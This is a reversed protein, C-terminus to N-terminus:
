FEVIRLFSRSAGLLNNINSTVVVASANDIVLQATVIVTLTGTVNTNYTISGQSVNNAATSPTSVTDAVLNNNVYLRFINHAAAVSSGINVLGTIITNIFTRISTSSDVTVTTEFIVVEGNGVNWSTSVTTETSFIQTGRNCSTPCSPLRGRNVVSLVSGAPCVTPKGTFCVSNCVAPDSDTRCGFVTPNVGADGFGNCGGFVPNINFRRCSMNYYIIINSINHTKTFQLSFTTNEFDERSVSM